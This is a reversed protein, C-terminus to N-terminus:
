QPVPEPEEAQSPPSSSLRAAIARDENAQDLLFYLDFVLDFVDEVTYAQPLAPPYPIPQTLSGPLPKVVEVPIEVTETKTVVRVPEAGCGTLLLLAPLM